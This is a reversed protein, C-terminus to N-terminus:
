RRPNRLLRLGNAVVILTSGEHGVVGISLTVWGLFTTSILSVIVLISFALNQKIIRRAKRGLEIAYPLKRLDDSMLVVDATELAVDTGAAGMAIGISAAALAPADNVGDGVMAVEGYAKLLRKVVEVKDQPLLEARYEDIGLQHAISQAVRENDGTLIIAKTIGIAKLEEVVQRAAPRIMDAVALIGLFKAAYVLMTTKGQHELLDVKERLGQPVPIGQEIFLQENGILIEKKDIFAKVGKGPISQLGSVEEFSLGRGKAEAVVAEAIHHESLREVSASLQLLQSEAIGDLPIVDTVQPEGRTLTGTKDFAVVKIVGIRELHAGGKFLIGNRAANAIASLVSAPTSIVLACPSAVVLLTMARYFMDRFGWGFFLPLILATLLAGSIVAITYYQGVWETFRQTPAKQNQAEEVLRIMKALTTDQALKTVTIELTGHQNLTGAYVLHGERKEVPISEGTIPSQDVVSEGLRVTGDMPIQEGPKVIVVDGIKLKEVPLRIEEGNWKVLAEKASLKMLARIAQRTRGMAYSELTNSLSFLFMLLAGEQWQGILSAGIAAAVMLFNIDFTLALLASFANRASYYGGAVSSLAYLFIKFLPPTAEFLTSIWGSVLFTACLATLTAMKRRQLNEDEEEESPKVEFGLKTVVREIQALNTEDGAYEIVLKSAAFNVSAWPVGPLHSIRQEISHTCELCNVGSIRMACREYHTGLKIGLQQAAQDVKELSILNPDYRLTVLSRETDYEASAIGKYTTLTNVLIEACRVDEEDPLVLPIDIKNADSEM